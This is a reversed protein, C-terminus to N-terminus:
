SIISTIGGIVERRRSFVVRAVMQTVGHNALVVKGGAVLQTVGHNALVVIRESWAARQTIGHSAFAVREEGAVRQRAHNALHDARQIMGHSWLWRTVRQVDRNRLCVVNEVVVIFVNLEGVLEFSFSSVLIVSQVILFSNAERWGIRDGSELLLVM